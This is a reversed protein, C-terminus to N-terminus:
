ETVDFFTVQYSYNIRSDQAIDYIDHITVNYTEDKTAEGPDFSITPTIGYGPTKIETTVSISQMNSQRIVTVFTLGDLDYKSSNVSFSWLATAGTFCQLPYYGQSPYAVYDFSPTPASFSPREVVYNTSAWVGSGWVTGFASKTLRPYLIWRRHGLTSDNGVDWMYGDVTQVPTRASGGWGRYINGSACAIWGGTNGGLTAPGGFINAQYNASAGSPVPPSHPNSYPDGNIELMVLVHAGKQCRVRWLWDETVNDPLGALWRYFNIWAIGEDNLTQTLVGEYGTDDVALIPNQTFTCSTLTPQIATWYTKIEQKTRVTSVPIVSLTVTAQDTDLNADTVTFTITYDRPQTFTVLGPDEVTADPAASDFNWNYTFPALGGVVTGQFDASDGATLSTGGSPSSIQAILDQVHVTIVASDSSGASDEAQLVVRYTGPTSFTVLGPDEVTTNPAGGDFDWDTRYPGIGGGVSGEFSLSGGTVVTANDSPSKIRVTISYLGKGANSCAGIALLIAISISVLAVTPRRPTIM